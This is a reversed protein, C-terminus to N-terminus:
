SQIIKYDSGSIIMEPQELLFFNDVIYFIVLHNPDKKWSEKPSTTNTHVDPTSEKCISRNNNRSVVVVTNIFILYLIHCLFWLSMMFIPPFLCVCM